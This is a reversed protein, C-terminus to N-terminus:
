IYRIASITSEKAGAATAFQIATFGKKRNQTADAKAQLLARVIVTNGQQSAIM